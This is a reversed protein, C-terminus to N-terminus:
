GIPLTGDGYIYIVVDVKSVLAVVLDGAETVAFFLAEEVADGAAGDFDDGEKDVAVYALEGLM